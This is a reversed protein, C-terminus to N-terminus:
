PCGALFAAIFTDVDSLDIFGFPFAIDAVPDGALFAAIFVDVDELDLFGFPVGLDAANCSPVTPEPTAVFVGITGNELFAAFGIQDNDNIDINSNITQVGTTGGFDFGAALPGLDTNLIDGAGVVRVLGGPLGSGDGVYIATSDSGDEVRFAVLGNANNVPPFNALNSNSITMQGGEAIVTFGGQTDALVVERVGDATRRATFSISGDNGIGTSNVFGDWRPGTEAVTQPVYAGHTPLFRVIRRQPGVGFPSPITNMAVVRQANMRPTFIFDYLGSFDDAVPTQVRQGGIFEDVVVRDGAFGFDAKYCVSGDLALTPGGPSTTGLTGGPPFTNLLTGDTSFVDLDQGTFFADAVAIRGGFADISPGYLVDASTGSIVLGGEAPNGYFVGESPSGNLFVRIAAAGTEDLSTPQSSLSSGQPMRFAPIAPDLSSRGVLEITWSQPVQASAILPFSAALAITSPRM